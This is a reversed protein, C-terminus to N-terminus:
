SQKDRSKNVINNDDRARANDDFRQLYAKWLIDDLRKMHEALRQEYRSMHEDYRSMQVDYKSLHEDIRILHEDYRSVHEDIRTMHEDLRILHDDLKRMNDSLIQILVDYKELNRDTELIHEDIQHDFKSHNYLAFLEIAIAGLVIIELVIGLEM